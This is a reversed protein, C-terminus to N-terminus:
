LQKCFLISPAPPQMPATEVSTQALTPCHPDAMTPSVWRAARCLRCRPATRQSRRYGDTWIVWPLVAWLRPQAFGVAFSQLLCQRSTSSFLLICMQPVATPPSPSPQPATHTHPAFRGLLRYPHVPPPWAQQVQSSKKMKFHTKKKRQFLSFIFWLVRPPATSQSITNNPLLAGVPALAAHQLDAGRGRCRRLYWLLPFPPFCHKNHGPKTTGQTQLERPAFRKRPQGVPVRQHLQPQLARAARM